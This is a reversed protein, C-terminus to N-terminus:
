VLVGRVCGGPCADDVVEGAVTHRTDLLSEHPNELGGCDEDADTKVLKLCIIDTEGLGDSSDPGCLGAEEKGNHM